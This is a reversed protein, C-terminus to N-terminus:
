REVILTVDYERQDRRRTSAPERELGGDDVLDPGVSYTVYGPSLTQYRLPAGNFPDILGAANPLAALGIIPDPLAGNHALRYKELALAAEACRLLAESEAAKRAYAVMSPLLMKSFILLKKTAIEHELKQYVEEIEDLGAPFPAKSAVVMGRMTRLYFLFDRDRLGTWAYLPGFLHTGWGVDADQDFIRIIEAPAARFCYIGSCIEGAFGFRYAQQSAERAGRIAAALADLQTESLAHQTLVRELAASNISLCAIRVLQSILLPEAELSRAVAVGDLISSVAAEARGEESHMIVAARLVQTMSKVKSLHPLLTNPGQSYDVPYRSQKVQAAEHVIELAHANNTVISSLEDREEPGLEKTRAPWIGQRFANPDLALYDVAEMIRMAANDQDPIAERSDQLERPSAPFGEQSLAVLERRVQSQLFLRYGQTSVAIILAILLLALPWRRKSAHSENSVDSTTM